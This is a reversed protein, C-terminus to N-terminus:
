AGTGSYVRLGKKWIWSAFISLVLISVTVSAFGRYIADIGVRGTIYAVPTYVGSAFPLMEVIQRYGYPILDLPFLEGSLVWLLMNKAATIAHIKNFYFAFCSIIFSITHVLVLYYACLLLALPIREFQTPLFFVMTAVLPVLLSFVTTIFKYGMLQSFYYEYFSIPRTLLGNITGSDVEAIMRMEYMWSTSIRAFFAAWMAYSLYYEQTFGNIQTAGSGQFVAYWLLIEIGTTLCPQVIADVIFNLRYELNSVIALKAFGINRRFFVAISKYLM